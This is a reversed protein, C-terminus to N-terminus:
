SFSRIYAKGIKELELNNYGLFDINSSKAAEYDNISDGILICEDPLYSYKKLLNKVLDIKPVPSGEISKFYRTLGLNECLFRLEEGDSGSIIHMNYHPSEKQIFALTEPILNAKNVLKKRMIDSFKSSWDNVQAESITQKRIKEFFYRFKVYRSLGGNKRHYVLLEEIEEEPFDALVERFGLERIAHSDIIVGDFDWLINKKGSFEKM